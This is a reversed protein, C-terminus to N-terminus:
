HPVLPRPSAGAGNEEEGPSLSSVAEVRRKKGKGKGKVDSGKGAVEEVAKGKGKGKGVGGATRKMAKPVVPDLLERKKSQRKEDTPGKFTLSSRRRATSTSATSTSQL